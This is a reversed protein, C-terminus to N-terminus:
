SVARKLIRAIDSASAGILQAGELSKEAIAAIEAESSEASIGCLAGEVKILAEEPHLFFDGTIRVNTITPGSLEAEVALMKGGPIKEEHRM